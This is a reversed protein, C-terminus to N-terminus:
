LWGGARGAAIAKSLWWCHDCSTGRASCDVHLRGLEELAQGIVTLTVADTHTPPTRRMRRDAAAADAPFPVFARSPIPMRIVLRDPDCM